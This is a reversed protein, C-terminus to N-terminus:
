KKRIVAFQWRFIFILPKVFQSSAEIQQVFQSVSQTALVLVLDAAMFGNCKM